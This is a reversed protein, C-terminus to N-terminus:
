LDNREGMLNEILRVAEWKREDVKSWLGSLELLTRIGFLSWYAGSKRLVWGKKRMLNFFGNRESLWDSSKEEIYVAYLTGIQYKEILLYIGKGIKVVRTHENEKSKLYDEFM